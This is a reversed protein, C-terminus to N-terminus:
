FPLDDSDGIEEFEEVSPYSRNLDMKTQQARKPPAYTNPESGKSESKGGCFSVQDAVVEVATRKNGDRDEYNRTQISGHVAVMDGKHFWKCLLDATGRWAAITIFDTERDGNKNKFNREVAIRATAVSTGSTTTRLEPDATLRGMLVAVNLM